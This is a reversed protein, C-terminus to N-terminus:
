GKILFKQILKGATQDTGKEAAPGACNTAVLVGFNKLPALWMVAFNLTNSGNHNLATGGAWDRKAIYWGLAYDQGAVASHLKAFTEKRLLKTDKHAGELHFVAYRAFDEIPCHVNGGPGIAPPNDAESGPPVPKRSLGSGSHGWPQDIKEKDGPSGFGAGLMGLPKFLKETISQEWPM